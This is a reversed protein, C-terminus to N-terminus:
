TNILIKTHYSKRVNTDDSSKWINKCLLKIENFHDSMILNLM